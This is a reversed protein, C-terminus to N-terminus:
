ACLKKYNLTIQMFHCSFVTKKSIVILTTKSALRIGQIVNIVPLIM